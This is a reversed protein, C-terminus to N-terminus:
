SISVEQGWAEIAAWVHDYAPTGFLACPSPGDFELGELGMEFAERLAHDHAGFLANLDCADFGQHVLARCIEISSDRTMDLAGLACRRGNHCVKGEYGTGGQKKFKDAIWAVAASKKDSM